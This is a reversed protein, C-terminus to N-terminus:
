KKGQKMALIKAKIAELKDNASLTENKPEEKTEVKPEEKVEATKSDVKKKEDVEWPLEEDPIFKPITPDPEKTEVKPEEVIEVKGVKKKLKALKDETTKKAHEVTPKPEEKSGVVEGTIVPEESEKIIVKEVVVKKPEVKKTTTTENKELGILNAFTTFDLPIDTPVKSEDLGRAIGYEGEEPVLKLYRKKVSKDGVLENKIYCRLCYRVAGELVDAVKDPLRNTPAYITHEVGRRDKQVTTLGHMLLIVSKDERGLLKMIGIYFNNRSIDYGKGYGLDSIHDINKEMCFDNECMKFTDELLDVVITEYEDYTQTFAKLCERWNRVRIHNEEKAGLDELYEYNADTTIFFPKPAGFAFTSKGVGPEGYLIMKLHKM